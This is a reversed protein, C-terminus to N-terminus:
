CNLAWNSKNEIGPSRSLESSRMNILVSIDHRDQKLCCLVAASRLPNKNSIEAVPKSLGRGATNKSLYEQFLVSM